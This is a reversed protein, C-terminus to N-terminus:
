SAPIGGSKNVWGQREIALYDSAGHAGPTGARNGPRGERDLLQATAPDIVLREIVGDPTEATVAMGFRGERDKIRGAVHVSPYEALIRYLAARTGPTTPAMLLDPASEFVYLGFDAPAVYGNAGGKRDQQWLKRLHSELGSKTTPLTAITKWEIEHSGIDPNVLHSPKDYTTTFPKSATTGGNVMLPPSGAAKWATKNKKIPFAFKIDLPGRSRFRMGTKGPLTCAWNESSSATLAQFAQARFKSVSTPVRAPQRSRTPIPVNQWM